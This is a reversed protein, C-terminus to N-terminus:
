SHKRHADHCLCKALHNRPLERELQVLANLLQKLGTAGGFIELEAILERVRCPRRRPVDCFSVAAEIRRLDRLEDVVSERRKVLRFIM